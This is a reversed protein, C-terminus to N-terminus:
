YNGTLSSLLLSIVGKSLTNMVLTKLGISAQRSVYAITMTLMVILLMKEPKFVLGFGFDNNEVDTNKAEM